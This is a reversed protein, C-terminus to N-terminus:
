QSSSLTQKIIYNTIAATLIIRIIQRYATIEKTIDNTYTYETDTESLELHTQMNLRIQLISYFNIM